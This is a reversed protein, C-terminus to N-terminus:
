VGKMAMILSLGREKDHVKARAAVAAAAIPVFMILTLGREVLPVQALEVAM